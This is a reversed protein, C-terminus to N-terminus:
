IIQTHRYIAEQEKLSRKFINTQRSVKDLDRRKLKRNDALAIGLATSVINRIQRGDFNYRKVGDEIWDKIDAPDDLLDKEQLQSTFSRFIAKKQDGSLESYQVALDVDITLIAYYVVLAGDSVFEAKCQL